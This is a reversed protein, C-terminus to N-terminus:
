QAEMEGLRQMVMPYYKPKIETLKTADVETLLTKFLKQREPIGQTVAIAKARVQEATYNPTDEAPKGEVPEPDTTPEPDPQPEPKPDAKPTEPKAKAARSATPKEPKTEGAVASLPFAFSSNNVVSQRNSAAVALNTLLESLAPAVDINVNVTIVM